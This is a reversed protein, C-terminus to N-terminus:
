KHNNKNHNYIDLIDGRLSFELKNYVNANNSHGFNVLTKILNNVDLKQNIKIQLFHDVETKLNFLKLFCNCTLIIIESKDLDIFKLSRELLIDSSSSELSFPLSDHAPFYLIKQYPFQASYINYFDIATKDDECIIISKSKIM